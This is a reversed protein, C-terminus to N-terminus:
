SDERIIDRNKLIDLIAKPATFPSEYIVKSLRIEKKIENKLEATSDSVYMSQNGSDLLMQLDNGANGCTISFLYANSLDLSQLEEELHRHIYNVAYDKAAALLDLNYRIVGQPLTIDKSTVILVKNLGLKNLIDRFALSVSIRTDEDGEFYYSIKFKGPMNTNYHDGPIFGDLASNKWKEVNEETDREQFCLGIHSFTVILQDNVGGPRILEKYIEERNFKVSQEINQIFLPDLKWESGQQKINIETGVATVAVDFPSEDLFDKFRESFLTLLGNEGQLSRGTVPILPINEQKAYSVIERTIKDGEFLQTLEDEPSYRILTGDVDTFIIYLPIKNLYNGKRASFQDQLQRLISQYPKM